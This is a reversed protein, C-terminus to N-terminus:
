KVPGDWELMGGTMNSVKFGQEELFECAAASRRGSRCVVIYDKSQDLEEFRTDVFGLPIHIADPIIGQAVEEDERVDLIKVDKNNKLLEEVENPNVERM